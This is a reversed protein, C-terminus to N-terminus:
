TTQRGRTEAADARVPVDRKQNPFRSETKESQGVPGAPSAKRNRHASESGSPIPRRDPSDHDLAKTGLLRTRVELINAAEGAENQRKM